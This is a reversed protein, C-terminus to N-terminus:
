AIKELAELDIRSELMDLSLSLLNGVLYDVLSQRHTTSFYRSYLNVLSSKSAKDGTRFVNIGNEVARRATHLHSKAISEGALLARAISVLVDGVRELTKGYNFYPLLLPRSKVGIKEAYSSSKLSLAVQRSLLFYFKDLEVDREVVSRLYSSDKEEYYDELDRVDNKVLIEMRSLIRELSMTSTDAVMQLQVYNEGEEFVELGVLRALSGRVQSLLGAPMRGGSYVIRIESYGAQYFSIIMREASEEEGPALEVRAQELRERQERLGPAVLLGEEREELYVVDGERLSHRKLWKSPLTVALSSKGLRILKRAYAM